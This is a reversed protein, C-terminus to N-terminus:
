SLLTDWWALVSLVPTGNGQDSSASITVTAYKSISFFITVMKSVAYELPNYEISMNTNQIFKVSNQEEPNERRNTLMKKRPILQRRVPPVGNGSEAIIM